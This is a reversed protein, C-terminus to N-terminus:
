LLGRLKETAINGGCIVIAVQKGRFREVNRLYAALAVGAAGEIIKHHKDVMWRIAEAIEVESILVYDDVLDRCLPFTISGPECGGASGDSLTDLPEDLQVIEGKQKSLYMEPANQPLCGIVEVEPKVAKVWSAVGSMLGGGGITALVADVEPLDELIEKAVTGQGAVVAPDNYPSVWAMGLEAARSKAFLEAAVCDQGHFELEVDYHRLAEVKSPVATEPLCIMGRDGSISLARAFGLGHNGTSATVLGNEKEAQTMSLVKNLAGRAKFSGTHQESELKLYVGGGDGDDLYRSHMLPTRLVYGAIRGHAVAIEDYYGM